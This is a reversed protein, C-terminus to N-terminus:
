VYASVNLHTGEMHNMKAGGPDCFAESDPGTSGLLALRLLKCQPPDGEKTYKEAGPLMFHRWNPGLQAWSALRLCKCKPAEAGPPM